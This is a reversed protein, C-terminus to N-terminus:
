GRFAAAIQGDLEEAARRLEEDGQSKLRALDRRLPGVRLASASTSQGSASATQAATQRMRELRAWQEDPKQLLDCLSRLAQAIKKGRDTLELYRVRGEARSRILGQGELQSLIGSTHPFTSDIRKAVLAAYAPEIEGVALLAQAPKERLFLRELTETM